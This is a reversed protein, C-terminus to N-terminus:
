LSLFIVCWMVKKAQEMQDCVLTSGFVFKMATELDGKFGVLTLATRVKDKGVQFTFITQYFLAIGAPHTPTPLDTQWISMASSIFINSPIEFIVFWGNGIGLNKVFHLWNNINSVSNKSAIFDIM